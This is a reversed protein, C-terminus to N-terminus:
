VVRFVEPAALGEAAVGQLAEPAAARTGLSVALAVRLAVQAVRPAVRDVRAAQQAPQARLERPGLQVAAQLARRVATVWDLQAVSERAARPVVRIVLLCNVILVTAVAVV